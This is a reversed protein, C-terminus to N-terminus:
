SGVGEVQARRAAEKVLKTERLYEVKNERLYEVQDNHSGGGTKTDKEKQKQKKQHTPDQQIPDHSETIPDHSESAGSSSTTTTSDSKNREAYPDSCSRENGEVLVELERRGDTEASEESGRGEKEEASVESGQPQGAQLPHACQPHLPTFYQSTDTLSTPSPLPAASGPLNSSPPQPQPPPTKPPTPATPATPPM